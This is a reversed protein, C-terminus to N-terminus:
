NNDYDPYRTFIVDTSNLAALWELKSVPNIQQKPLLDVNVIENGKYAISCVATADSQVLGNSLNFSSGVELSILDTELMNKLKDINFKIAINGGSQNDFLIYEFIDDSINTEFNNLYYNNQFKILYDLTSFSEWSFLLVFEKEIDYNIDFEEAEESYTVLCPNGNFHILKSNQIDVSYYSNISDISTCASVSKTQTENFITFIYPLDNAVFVSLEISDASMLDSYIFTKDSSLTNSNQNYYLIEDGNRVQLLLAKTQNDTFWDTTNITVDVWDELPTNIDSVYIYKNNNLTKNNFIQKTLDLSLKSYNLTSSTEINTKTYLVDLEENVYLSTLGDADPIALKYQEKGNESINNDIIVINKTLEQNSKVSITPKFVKYTRDIIPPTIYPRSIVYHNYRLDVYNSIEISNNGFDINLIKYYNNQLQTYLDQRVILTESVPNFDKDLGYVVCEIVQNSNSKVKKIYLKTQLMTNLINLENLNRNGNEFILRTLSLEEENGLLEVKNISSYIDDTEKLEEKDTGLFRIINLPYGSLFIRSFDKPQYELDYTQKLYENSRNYVSTFHSHLPELMKLGNSLNNKAITSWNAFSIKTRNALLNSDILKVSGIEYRYTDVTQQVKIVKIPTRVYTDLDTKILIELYDIFTDESSQGDIVFTLTYVSDFTLAKTTLSYKGGNKSNVLFASFSNPNLNSITVNLNSRIDLIAKYTIANADRGSPIYLKGEEISYDDSQIGTIKAYLKTAM